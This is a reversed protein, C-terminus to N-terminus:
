ETQQNEKNSKRVYEEVESKKFLNRGFPKEPKLHEMVTTTSKIKYREKVQELTLWEDDSKKQNLHEWKTNIHSIIEEKMKQLDDITPLNASM